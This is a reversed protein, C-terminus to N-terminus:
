KMKDWNQQICQYRFKLHTVPLLLNVDYAHGLIEHFTGHEAQVHFKRIGSGTSLSENSPTGPESNIHNVMALSLLNAM